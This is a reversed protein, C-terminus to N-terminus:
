VCVICREEQGGTPKIPTPTRFTDNRRILAYTRPKSTSALKWSTPNEAKRLGPASERNSAGVSSGQPAENRRFSPDSLGSRMTRSEFQYTSERTYVIYEGSSPQQANTSSSLVRVNSTM